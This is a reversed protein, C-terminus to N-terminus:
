CRELMSADLSTIDVDDSGLSTGVVCGVMLGVGCDCFTHKFPRVVFVSSLHHVLLVGLPGMVGSPNRKTSLISAGNACFKLYYHYNLM